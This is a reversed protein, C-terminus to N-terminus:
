KISPLKTKFQLDSFSKELSKYQYQSEASKAKDLNNEVGLQQALLKITLAQNKEIRSLAKLLEYQINAQLQTSRGPSPRRQLEDQIWRRDAKSREANEYIQNHRQIADVVSDDVTKQIEKRPTDPIAGYIEEVKYLIRKVDTSLEGWSGSKLSDELNEFLHLADDIGRNIDNMLNLTDQGADVIKKLETLEKVTVGILKLVAIATAGFDTIAHAPRFSSSILITIILIIAISKILYIKLKIRELM